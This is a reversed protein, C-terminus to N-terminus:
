RGPITRFVLDHSARQAEIMPPTPHLERRIAAGLTMGAAVVVSMVEQGDDGETVAMRGQGPVGREHGIPWRGSTTSSM